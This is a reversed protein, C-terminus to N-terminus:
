FIQFYYWHGATWCDGFSGGLEQVGLV